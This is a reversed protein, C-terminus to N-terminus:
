HDSPAPTLTNEWEHMHHTMSNLTWNEYKVSNKVVFITTNEMHFKLLIWISKNWPIWSTWPVIFQSLGWGVTIGHIGYPNVQALYLGWLSADTNHIRYYSAYSNKDKKSRTNKKEIAKTVIKICSMMTIIPKSSFHDTNGDVKPRHTEWDTKLLFSRIKHSPAHSHEEIITDYSNWISHLCETAHSAVLITNKRFKHKWTTTASWADSKICVRSNGYM